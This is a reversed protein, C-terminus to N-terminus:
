CENSHAMIVMQLFINYNKQNTARMPGLGSFELLKKEGEALVSEGGGRAKRVCVCVCLTESNSRWESEVGM